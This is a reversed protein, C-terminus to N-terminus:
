PRRTTDGRATDPNVITDTEVTTQTEVIAPQQITTMTTDVTTMEGEGGAKTDDGGCAAASVLATAAIVAWFRNKM